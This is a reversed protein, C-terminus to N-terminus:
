VQEKAFWSTVISWVASLAGFTAWGSDMASGIGDLVSAQGAPDINITGLTFLLTGVVTITHRIVGWTKDVKVNGTAKPRLMLVNFM